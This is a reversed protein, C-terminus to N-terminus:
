KMEEDFIKAVDVFVEEISRNADIERVLGKTRFEEVIPMTADLYTVFRKKLSEENDDTRGSGAAGRELCRETCVKEDCAFFLVCRVNAKESGVESNWGDLNDKNRPFGDILFNSKGSEKMARTLLSCTIAVPVITGNTIHHEILEGYESGPAKREARLLDGASLHVYGYKDVINQCQTGKGSGPAGLVFVVNPKDTTMGAPPPTSDTVSQDSSEADRKPHVLSNVACMLSLMSAITRHSFFNTAFSSGGQIILIRQHNHNQLLGGGTKSVNAAAKFSKTAAAARSYTFLLVSKTRSALFAM